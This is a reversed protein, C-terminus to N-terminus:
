KRIINVITELRTCCLQFALVRKYACKTRLLLKGGLRKKDIHECLFSLLEKKHAENKLFGSNLDHKRIQTHGDRIRTRPGTGRRQHKLSTLSDEPNNRLIADICDVLSTLPVGIIARQLTYCLGCIYKSIYAADYYHVAATMGLVVVTVFRAPVPKSASKYTIAQNFRPVIHWVHHNVKTKLFSFM